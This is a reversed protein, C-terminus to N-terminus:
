RKKKQTTGWRADWIAAMEEVLEPYQGALDSTETRNDALNYLAWPGRGERVIKYDGKVIAHTGSHNFIYAHNRDSSQGMFVPVLSLSEHPDITKGNFQKPYEAGALDICTAMM